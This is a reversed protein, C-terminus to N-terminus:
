CQVFHIFFIYTHTYILYYIYNKIEIVLGTYLM